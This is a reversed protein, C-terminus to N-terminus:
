SIHTAFPLNWANKLLNLLFEHRQRVVAPTWAEVPALTRNIGSVGGCDPQLLRAKQAPFSAEPLFCDGRHFAGNGLSPLYRVAEERNEWRNGFMSWDEQSLAAVPQRRHKPDARFLCENGVPEFTQELRVLLACDLGRFGFRGHEDLLATMRKKEDASLGVPWDDRCPHFSSSIAESSAFVRALREETNWEDLLLFFGLREFQQLIALRNSSPGNELDRLASRILALERTRFLEPLWNEILWAPRTTTRLLSRWFVFLDM